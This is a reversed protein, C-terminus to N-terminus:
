CFLNQQILLLDRTASSMWVTVTFKTSINVLTVEHARTVMHSVYCLNHAGTVKFIVTEIQVQHYLTVFAFSHLQYIYYMVTMGTSLDDSSM